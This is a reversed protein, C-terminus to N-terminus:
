QSVPIFGQVSDGGDGFFYAEMQEELYKRDAAKRPSLRKENILMTQRELWLKWAEKSVSALVKEGLAGPYPARELAEAERGLKVCMVTQSM